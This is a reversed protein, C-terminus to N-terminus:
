IRCLCNYPNEEMAQEIREISPYTVYLKRIMTLTMGYGSYKNILEILCFDRMVKKKIREFTYEKIGNTLSLDVEENHLIRDIIDPYVSLLINAQRITLVEELFKKSEEVTTPKDRSIKSVAYQFGFKSNYKEEAEISYEVGKELDPLDGVITVTNYQNFKLMKHEPVRKDVKMGYIKFNSGSHVITQLEGKFKVV